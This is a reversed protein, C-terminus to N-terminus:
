NIVNEKGEFTGCEDMYRTLKACNSPLVSALSGHNHNGFAFPLCSEIQRCM